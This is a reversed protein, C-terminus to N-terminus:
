RTSHKSQRFEGLAVSRLSGDGALRGILNASMATFWVAGDRGATIGYLGAPVPFSTIAGDVTIRGVRDDGTRTFWLAGDAAATIQSPRCDAPELQHLTVSRDGSVRAIQGAHVLTVWLAGDSGRALAYPGAGPAGVEVLEVTM